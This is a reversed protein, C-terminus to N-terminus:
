LTVNKNKFQTVFKNMSLIRFQEANSNMSLQVSKSMSLTVFRSM